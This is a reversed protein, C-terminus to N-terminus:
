GWSRVALTLGVDSRPGIDALSVGGARRAKEAGAAVLGARGDGDEGEGRVGVEGPKEGVQGVEADLDDTALELRDVLGGRGDGPVDVADDVGGSEARERQSSDHVVLAHGDPTLGDESPCWPQRM